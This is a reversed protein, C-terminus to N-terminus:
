AAQAYPTQPQTATRRAPTAPRSTRTVDLPQTTYTRRPPTSSTYRRETSSNRPGQPFSRAAATGGAFIAGAAMQEQQAAIRRRGINLMEAHKAVARLKDETRTIMIHRLVLLTTGPLIGLFPILEIVGALASTLMRGKKFSWINVGLFAFWGWFVLLGLFSMLVQLFAYVAPGIFLLAVAGAAGTALSYACAAGSTYKTLSFYSASSAQICSSIDGLGLLLFVAAVILVLIPLLDFIFAVSLLLMTQLGSITHQPSM